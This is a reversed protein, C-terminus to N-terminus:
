SCSGTKQAQSSSDISAEGVHITGEDGGKNIPPTRLGMAEVLGRSLHGHEHLVNAVNQAKAQVTRCHYAHYLWQVLLIHHLLKSAM